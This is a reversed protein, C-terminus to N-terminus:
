FVQFDIKIINNNATPQININIIKANLNNDKIFKEISGIDELKGEIKFSFSDVIEMKEETELIKINNTTLFNKIQNIIESKNLKKRNLLNNKLDSIKINYTSEIKEIETKLKTSEAIQTISNEKEKLLNMREELDSSIKELNKNFLIYSGVLIAIFIVLIILTRTLLYRLIPSM